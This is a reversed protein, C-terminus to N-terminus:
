CARKDGVSRWEHEIARMLLANDFQVSGKPFLAENEFFSSRVQTVTLPSVRWNLTRLEMGEFKQANPSYGVSGKEFFASANELSGFVSTQEFVGEDQADVSIGTGDSARYDLHYLSGSERVNFKVLHHKGPFVRGGVIANLM